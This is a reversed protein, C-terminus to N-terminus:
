SENWDVVRKDIVRYDSVSVQAKTATVKEGEPAHHVEQVWSGPAGDEAPSVKEVRFGLTLVEAKQRSGPKGKWTVLLPNM